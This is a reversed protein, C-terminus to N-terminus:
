RFHPMVKTAFLEVHEALKKLPYGAPPIFGYVGEIPAASAIKDLMAICQGPTVVKLPGDKIMEEPTVQKGGGYWPHNTASNWQSYTNVSHTVHAAVEHATKEPDNSVLVWSVSGQIMRAASAPKGAAALEKVYEPYRLAMDGGGYIGDGYMAARKLAAPNSGGVWLTPHVQVPRPMLRANEVTYHRGKFNLTEGDWLRRIIQLMETLRAGREKQSVDYGTFEDPKYGLGLGLEMRGNSIIDLVAADEAIRVPHYFPALAIATTIRIRSTKAAVAAAAILPSPLYGDVAFHHESMAVTDYGLTEVWQIFELTEAYLDQWPRHWQPPNRFDFQMGFTLKRGM